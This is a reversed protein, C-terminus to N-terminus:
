LRTTMLGSRNFCVNITRVIFPRIRPLMTIFICITRFTEFSLNRGSNVKAVQKTMYRAQVYRHTSRASSSVIIEVRRGGYIICMAYRAQIRAQRRYFGKM